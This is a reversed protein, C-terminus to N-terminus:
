KLSVPLEGCSKGTSAPSGEGPGPGVSNRAGQAGLAGETEQLFSAPNESRAGVSAGRQDIEAQTGLPGMRPLAM